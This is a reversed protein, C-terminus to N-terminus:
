TWESYTNWFYQINQDTEMLGFQYMTHAKLFDLDVVPLGCSRIELDLPSMLAMLQLPIVSALGCHVARVRGESTEPIQTM